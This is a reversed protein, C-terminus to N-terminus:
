KEDGGVMPVIRVSKEVARQARAALAAAQQAQARLVNGGFVTIGLHDRTPQVREDSKWEGEDRTTGNASVVVGKGHRLGHQWEGEWRAGSAYTLVGQGHRRGQQMGGEYAGGKAFRCTGRGDPLGEQHSGEYTSGDSWTTKGQGCPRGEDDFDGEYMTGDTWQKTTTTPPPPPPVPPMVFTAQRGLARIDKTTSGRKLPSNGTLAGRLESLLRLDSHTLHGDNDVDFAAFQDLIPQVNKWDLPEGGLEAGLHILTEVLFEIKDVGGSGDADMESLINVDLRRRLMDAHRLQRARREMLSQLHGIIAALWIVSLLVHMTAFLRGLQSEVNVDGYGVTTATIFCYWCVDGFTMHDDVSVIIIVVITQFLLFYVIAVSLGKFYFSLFGLPERSDRAEAEVTGKGGLIVDIMRLTWNTLRDIAMRFVIAIQGFIFVVGIIIWVATFFRSGNGRVTLDGFGVTSMSVTTFYLGDVLTWPEVCTAPDYNPESLAVISECPKTQLAAYFIMGITYYPVAIIILRAWPGFCHLFRDLAGDKVVREPDDSVYLRGSGSTPNRHPSHAFKNM